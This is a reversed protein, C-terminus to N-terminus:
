RDSRDTRHIENMVTDLNKTAWEPLKDKDAIGVISTRRVYTSEKSFLNYGYVKTGLSNPLAGNGGTVYFLQHEESQCERRLNDANLVVIKGNLNDKTQIPSYKEKGYVSMVNPHQERWLEVENVTRKSYEQMIAIYDNSVVCNNLTQFIENCELSGCLFREDANKNEAVLLMNDGFDFWHIPKYGNFDMEEYNM